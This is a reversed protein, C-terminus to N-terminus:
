LKVDYVRELEARIMAAKPRPIELFDFIPWLNINVIRKLMRANREAVFALLEPADHVLLAIVRKATPSLM